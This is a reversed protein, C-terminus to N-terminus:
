AFLMITGSFYLLYTFHDNFLLLLITFIIISKKHVLTIDLTITEYMMVWLPTAESASNM